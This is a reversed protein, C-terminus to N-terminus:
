QFFGQCGQGGFPIKVMDGDARVPIVRHTAAPFMEPLSTDDEQTKGDRNPFGSRRLGTRMSHPSVSTDGTPRYSYDCFHRHSTSNACDGWNSEIRNEDKRLSCMRSNKKEQECRRMLTQKDRIM